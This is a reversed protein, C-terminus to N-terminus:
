ILAGFHPDADAFGVCLWQKRAIVRVCRVPVDTVEFTKILAGTEIHWINM